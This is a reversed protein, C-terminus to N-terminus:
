INSANAAQPTQANLWTEIERRHAEGHEVVDECILTELPIMRQDNVWPSPIYFQLDSENLANVRQVLAGRTNEFEARVRHWDWGRRKEAERANIDDDLSDRLMPRPRGETFTERIHNLTQQEWYSLHGILDQISWQGEAFPTKRVSDSSHDCLALLNDRNAELAAVLEIKSM